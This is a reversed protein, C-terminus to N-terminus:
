GCQIRPKMAKWQTRGARITVSITDIPSSDPKHLGCDTRARDTLEQILQYARQGDEDQYYFLRGPMGAEFRRYGLGAAARVPWAEDYEVVEIV